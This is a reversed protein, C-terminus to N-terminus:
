VPVAAVEDVLPLFRERVTAYSFHGRGVEYNHEVTESWAAPDALLRQVEDVALPDLGGDVEICRV